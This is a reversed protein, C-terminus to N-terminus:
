SLLIIIWNLIKKSDEDLGYKLAEIHNTKTNVWYAHMKDFAILEARKAAVIFPVSRTEM